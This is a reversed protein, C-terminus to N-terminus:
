VTVGSREGRERCSARGIEARQGADEVRGVHPQLRREVDEPELREGDRQDAAEVAEAADNGRRDEDRQDLAQRDAVAVRQQAVDPGSLTTYPFSPSRPSRLL